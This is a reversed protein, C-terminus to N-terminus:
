SYNSLKNLGFQFASMVWNFSTIFCCRTGNLRTKCVFRKSLSVLLSSGLTRLMSTAGNCLYLHYSDSKGPVSDVTWLIWVRRIIIIFKSSQAENTVRRRMDLAPESFKLKVFSQFYQQACCFIGFTYSLCVRFFNNDVTICPVLM